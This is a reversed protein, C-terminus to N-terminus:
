GRTWVKDSYYVGLYIAADAKNSLKDTSVEIKDAKWGSTKKMTINKLATCDKFAYVGIEKAGSGITVTSLKACDLFAYEGICVVSDPMVVSTLSKCNNFAMDAIAKTGATLTYTGSLSTKAAVASKGVYLVNNTWKSSTNYYKTNYFAREGVYTVGNGVTITNLSTADCFAKTGISHVSDPIVIGSLSKCGYFALGGICTTNPEIKYTGSITGEAQILNTGIYLVKNKWNSAVTSYETKMFVDDEIIRIKGYAKIDVLNKCNYFAGYKIVEINKGLDISTLASCYRFSYDGLFKVNKGFTVSALASCMSFAQDEIIEVYDGLKVSTINKDDGFASYGVKTVPLGKHGDIVIAKATATGKSVLTYSLKDENLVFKLGTTSEKVNFTPKEQPKADENNDNKNDENNKNDEDNNDSNGVDAGGNNINDDIIDETNDETGNDLNGDNYVDSGNYTDSGSVDGGEDVIKGCSALSVTAFVAVLAIALLKKM